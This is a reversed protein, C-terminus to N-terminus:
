MLQVMWVTQPSHTCILTPAGFCTGGATVSWADTPQCVVACCLVVCCLVCFSQVRETCVCVCLTARDIAPPTHHTREYRNAQSHAFTRARRREINAGAFCEVSLLLCCVSFVACCLVVCCLVVCCLVVCCLVVCCLVVCCLACWVVTLLFSPFLPLACCLVASTMHM